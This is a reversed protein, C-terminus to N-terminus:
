ACILMDNSMFYEIKTYDVSYDLNKVNNREFDIDKHNDNLRFNVDTSEFKYSVIDKFLDFNEDLANQLKNKDVSMEYIEVPMYIQKEGNEARGPPPTYDTKKINIGFQSTDDGYRNFQNLKNEIDLKHAKCFREVYEM